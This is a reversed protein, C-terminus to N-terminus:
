GGFKKGAEWPNFDMLASESWGNAGTIFGNTTLNETLHGDPEGANVLPLPMQTPALTCSDFCTTFASCSSQTAYSGHKDKSSFVVPMPKGGVDQTSCADLGCQGCESTKECLTGQHSIAKIAVIGDPPPLKPDVTVGFVEDDGVHGSLGCDNQ